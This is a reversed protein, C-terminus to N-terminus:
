KMTAPVRWESANKGDWYRIAGCNPCWEVSKWWCDKDRGVTVLDVRHECPTPPKHPLVDTM